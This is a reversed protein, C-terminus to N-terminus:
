TISNMRFWRSKDAQEVHEEAKATATCSITLMLAISACLYIKAMLFSQM